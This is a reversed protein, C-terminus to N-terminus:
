EDPICYKASLNMLGGLVVFPWLVAMIFLAVVFAIIDVPDSVDKKTVWKYKFNLVPLLCFTLIFGIYYIQYFVIM